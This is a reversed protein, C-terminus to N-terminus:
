KLYKPDFEVAHTELQSLIEEMSSISQHHQEQNLIYNIVNSRAEMSYTFAGYGEQWCEFFPFLNKRKILQTTSLKIDKVLDALAVSPHLSCCIHIHDEVGNVAYNHCNKNRLIGAIHELLQKRNPQTLARIRNRTAFIIQYTIQTYTSM